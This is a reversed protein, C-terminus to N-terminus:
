IAEPRVVVWFVSSRYQQRRTDRTAYCRDSRPGCFVGRRHQQHRTAAKGLLPDIRWLILIAKLSIPKPSYPGIEEPEPYRGTPSPNQSCPLLCKIKM